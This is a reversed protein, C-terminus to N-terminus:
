KLLVHLGALLSGRWNPVAGPHLHIVGTALARSQHDVLQIQEAAPLVLHDQVTVDTMDVSYPWGGNWVCNSLDTTPTVVVLKIVAVKVISLICQNLNVYIWFM